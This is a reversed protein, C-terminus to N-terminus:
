GCSRDALRLPAATLRMSPTLLFSPSCSPGRVYCFTGCSFLGCAGFVGVTGFERLVCVCCAFRLQQGAHACRMHKLLQRQAQVPLRRDSQGQAAAAAGGAAAQHVLHHCRLGPLPLGVAGSHSVGPLASLGAVHTRTPPCIPPTRVGGGIWFMGLLGMSSVMQAVLCVATINPLQLPLEPTSHQCISLSCGGCGCCRPRM